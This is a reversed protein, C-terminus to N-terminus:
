KRDNIRTPGIKEWNLCLIPSLFSGISFLSWTERLSFGSTNFDKKLAPLRCGFINAGIDRAVIIKKLIHYPSLSNKIEIIVQNRAVRCFESIATPIDRPELHHLTNLCIVVDFYEDPFDIKSVSSRTFTIRESEFKEAAVRVMGPSFDIGVIKASPFADALDKSFDGRGCGADLISSADRGVMRILSKRIMRQIRMAFGKEADYIGQRDKAVNEFYSLTDDYHNQRRM